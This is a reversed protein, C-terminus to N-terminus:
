SCSRNSPFVLTKYRQGNFEFADVMQMDLKDRHAILSRPNNESVFAVGVDYRGKLTKLMTNCLGELIGKGRADKDICVPGYMFISYESLSRSRFTVNPFRNTMTRILPSHIASDMTQAILYGLLGNGEIAVFIGLENDLRELQEYSYEISLFGDQRDKSEINTLLNDKQLSILQPFDTANAKRYLPM